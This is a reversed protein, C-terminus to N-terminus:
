FSVGFLVRYNELEQFIFSKNVRLLSIKIKLFLCWISSQLERIRSFYFEQKSPAFM